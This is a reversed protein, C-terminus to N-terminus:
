RTGGSFTTFRHTRYMTVEKDIVTALPTWAWLPARGVRIGNRLLLDYTGLDLATEDVDKWFSEDRSVTGYPVTFQYMSVFIVNSIKGPVIPVQGPAAAPPAASSAADAPVPRYGGGCASARCGALLLAPVMM